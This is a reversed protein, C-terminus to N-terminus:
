GREHVSENVGLDPEPVEDRRDPDNEQGNTSPPDRAFRCPGVSPGNCLASASVRSWRTRCTVPRGRGRASRSRAPRLTTGSSVAEEIRKCTSWRRRTSGTATTTGAGHELGSFASGNRSGSEVVAPVAVVVPTASAAFHTELEAGSAKERMAHSEASPWTPGYVQGLNLTRARYAPVHGTHLLRHLLPSSIAVSSSPRQTWASQLLM